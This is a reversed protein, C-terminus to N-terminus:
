AVHELEQMWLHFRTNVGTSTQSARTIANSFSADDCLRALRGRIDAAIETSMPKGEPFYRDFGVLVIDMISGNIRRTWSKKTSVYGRFAHEGFVFKTRALANLFRAELGPLREPTMNLRTIAENLFTRLNGTYHDHGLFLFAVARLVLEETQMRPDDGGIQMRTDDGGTGAVDRFSGQSMDAALRSILLLENGNFLAHRMEQTNLPVGGDNLREFVLFKVEPHTGPQIIICTLATNEFRRQLRGELEAFKKGQLDPFFELGNLELDDDIFRFLTTLRQQGDIVIIRQESEESLYFAPLPIRALVSEVLRVQRREDWVFQRTFNPSIQLVGQKWNKYLQFISWEVKAIQLSGLISQALSPRISTDPEILETEPELTPSGSIDADAMRVLRDYM